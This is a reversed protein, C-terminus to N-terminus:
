AASTGGGKTVDRVAAADGLVAELERTQGDDRRSPRGSSSCVAGLCEVNAGTHSSQSGSWSRSLVWCRKSQDRCRAAGDGHILGVQANGTRTRAAFLLNVALLPCDDGCVAEVLTINETRRGRRALKSVGSVRVAPKGSGKATAVM